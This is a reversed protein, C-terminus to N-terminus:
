LQRDYRDPVGSASLAISSNFGGSITTTITSTGQNGQQVTVTSPSASITFSPPAVVTLTVTTNQQTGGGNGTVTIPYVGTPTSAGVTITMTSSGNGPAPIPNPNYSVTTGTPVGSASLAISNNFGGSITTTITSTGKDGQRVTVSSPSASITFSPGAVVTLNVIANQQIGNGTGTVTIPYTGTPTNGGVTITMASIGDGPPPLSPPSFNVSTGSPMGSASLSVTGSFGGGMIVYIGSTGQQGQAVTLNSPTATVTFSGKGQAAITLTVTANKQVGGGNGTVTIPYNGTRAISIVTITMVSTGSGPAGITAPNFSATAGMPLGSASLGISSNFGGSAVTTVTLMAQGNQPVTLTSPTVTLTYTGTASLPIAFFLCGLLSLLSLYLATRGQKPSISM